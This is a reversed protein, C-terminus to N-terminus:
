CHFTDFKCVKMTKPKGTNKIEELERLIIEMDKAASGDARKLRKLLNIKDRNKDRYRQSATAWQLALNSNVPAFTAAAAGASHSARADVVESCPSRSVYPV